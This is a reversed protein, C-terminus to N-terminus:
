QVTLADVEKLRQACAAVLKPYFSSLTDPFNL